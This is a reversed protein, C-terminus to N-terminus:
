IKDQLRRLKRLHTNPIDGMVVKAVHVPIYIGPVFYLNVLVNQCWCCICVCTHMAITGIQSMGQYCPESVYTSYVFLYAIVCFHSVHIM